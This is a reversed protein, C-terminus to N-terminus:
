IKLDEQAPHFFPRADAFRRALEAAICGIERRSSDMVLSEPLVALPSGARTSDQKDRQQLDALVSAITAHIGREQLQKRRREARIGIDATLFVKLAADPFVASGMDRGDAVLGPFRRFGRQLPLFIERVAELRALRSAAAGTEPLDLGPRSFINDPSLNEAIRRVADEDDPSIKRALAEAAAARYIKGSDLYHFKLTEALARAVAGKGAAAPGDIAIVPVLEAVIGDGM